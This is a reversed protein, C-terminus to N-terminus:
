QMQQLHPHPNNPCKKERRVNRRNKGSEPLRGSRSQFVKELEFTQVRCLREWWEPCMVHISSLLFSVRSESFHTGANQACEFPM